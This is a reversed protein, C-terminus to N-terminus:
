RWALRWLRPVLQRRANCLPAGCLGSRSLRPRGLPWGMHRALGSRDQIHQFERELLTSGASHVGPKSNRQEVVWCALIRQEVLAHYRRTGNRRFALARGLGREAM